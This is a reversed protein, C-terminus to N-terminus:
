RLVSGHGGFCGGAGPGVQGQVVAAGGDAEAAGVVVGDVADPPEHGVGAFEGRPEGGAGLHFQAGAARDREAAIRVHRLRRAADEGDVRGAMEGELPAAVFQAEVEFGEVVPAGAEREGVHEGFPVRCGAVAGAPLHAEGGEVRRRRTFPGLARV